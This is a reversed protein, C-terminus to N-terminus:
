PRRSPSGQGSGSRDLSYKGRVQPGLDRIIDETVVVELNYMKTKSELRAAINVAEGIM